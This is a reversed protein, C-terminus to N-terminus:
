TRLIIGVPFFLIMPMMSDTMRITNATPANKDVSLSVGSTVVSGVGVSSVTVVGASGVLAITPVETSPRTM